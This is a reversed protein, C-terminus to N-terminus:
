IARTQNVYYLPVYSNPPPIITQSERGEVGVVALVLGAHKSLSRKVVQCYNQIPHDDLKLFGM